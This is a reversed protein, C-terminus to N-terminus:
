FDYFTESTLTKNRTANSQGSSENSVSKEKCVTGAKVKIGLLQVNLGDTRM